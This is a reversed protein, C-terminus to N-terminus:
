RTWPESRLLFRKVLFGMLVSLVAYNAVHSYVPSMEGCSESLLQFFVFLGIGQAFEFGLSIRLCGRALLFFSCASAITRFIDGLMQPFLYGGVPLFSESFVLAIVRDKIPWVVAFGLGLFVILWVIVKKLEGIALRAGSRSFRPLAHNILVVGVFQMYVDSIKVVGQWYGVKEWSYSSAMLERMYMQALPVSLAGVWTLSSFSLLHKLRVWDVAPRVLVICSDGRFAMAIGVVGLMAPSMVTTFAAGDVGYWYAGAAVLVAGFITGTVNIAMYKRSDGQGSAVALLLSGIGVFFQTVSLVLITRCFQGQLLSTSILSASGALVLALVSSFALTITLACAIWCRREESSSAKASLVKIVGSSIGGGALMGAVAVLGMLQSLLGFGEPGLYLALLKILVLASLVKTATALLYHTASRLQNM